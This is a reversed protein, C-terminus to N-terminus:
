SRHGRSYRTATGHLVNPEHTDKKGTIQFQVFRDLLVTFHCYMYAEKKKVNKLIPLASCFELAGNFDIFHAAYVPLHCSSAKKM